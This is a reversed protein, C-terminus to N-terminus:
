IKEPRGSNKEYLTKKLRDCARESYEVSRIIQDAEFMIIKTEHPTLKGVIFMHNAEKKLDGARNRTTNNHYHLAEIAKQITM